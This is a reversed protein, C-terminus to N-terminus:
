FSHLTSAWYFQEEVNRVNEKTGSYGDNYIYIYIYIIITMGFSVTTGKYLKGREKVDCVCGTDIDGETVVAKSNVMYVCEEDDFYVLYFLDLTYIGVNIVKM